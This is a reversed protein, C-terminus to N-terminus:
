DGPLPPAAELEGQTLVTTDGVWIPTQDNNGSQRLARAVYAQAEDAMVKGDPIGSLEGDAWGRLAGVAFYTFAGHRAKDLPAALQDAGAANWQRSPGTAKVAYTPVVMRTGGSISTGGRSAGTYCADLVLQATRGGSTIREELEAVAVGRSAFASVKPRVDDGLLMREGTDPNGAGHGAFYVWVTGGEGEAIARDVAELTDERSGATLLQM